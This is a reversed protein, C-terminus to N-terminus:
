LEILYNTSGTPIYPIGSSNFLITAIQNVYPSVTSGVVFTCKTETIKCVDFPGTTM